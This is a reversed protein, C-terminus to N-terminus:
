IRRIRTEPDAASIQELSAGCVLRVHPGSMLDPRSVQDAGKTLDGKGVRRGGKAEILWTTPANQHSGVLDPLGSKPSWAPGADAPQFAEAHLTPGLGMLGRCAWEAMTMGIRYGFAAQATKETARRYVDNPEVLWGSMGLQAKPSRSRRLYAMLPSWRALLESWALAPLASLWPAPYRGVTMAAAM